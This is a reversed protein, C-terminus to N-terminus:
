PRMVSIFMYANNDALAADSADVFQDGNLDTLLYGSSFSSIDNDILSLDSGDITGDQNVDGSYMAFTSPSVDVQALNNGFARNVASTFDYTITDLYSPVWVSSWTEISNRHRVVIYYSNNEQLSTLKVPSVTPYASTTTMTNPEIMASVSDITLYPANNDKIVISVVDSATMSNSAPNYLGQPLLKLSIFKHGESDCYANDGDEGAYAIMSITGEITQRTVCVPSIVSSFPYSNVMFQINLAPSGAAYERVSVEQGDNTAFLVTFPREGSQVSTCWTFAKNQSASSTIGLNTVWATNADTTYHYVPINNRTCTIMATDCPNNQKVSLCPKEYKYLGTTIYSTSFSSSVSWPTKLLRIQKESQSVRREVAIWIEDATGNFFQASPYYDVGGTLISAFAFSSGWNTTRFVKFRTASTETLDSECAVVGFYTASSFFAGDSVASLSHFSYGSSPDAIHASYYGTGNRRFTAFYLKAATNSSSASGTFFLNVRTSDPNNNDRSEVTMAISYTYYSSSQVSACSIWTKGGNSSRYVEVKSKWVLGNQLRNVAVYINGDEGTKMEIQRHYQSINDNVEGNTIVPAGLAWDGAEEGSMSNDFEIAKDPVPTVMERPPLVSGLKRELVSATARDGRENADKIQDEIQSVEEANYEPTTNTVTEANSPVNLSLEGSGQSHLDTSTVIATLAIICLFKSLIAM